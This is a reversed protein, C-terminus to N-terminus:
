PLVDACLQKTVLNRYSPAGDVHEKALLESHSGQEVIQGKNFVVIRDADKVTSLRHAIVLTTRGKRARQLAQQVLHESEADLASTAEDLLLVNPAQIIARAIAVRQKQGGSLQAGKEGVKTEYGDPLDAIFDAANAQKAAEQVRADYEAKLAPDKEMLAELGPRENLVSYMINSRITGSFLVPEQGVLAVRSHLKKPSIQHVPVGDVTVVGNNPEYYHELLHFCTSKGAGSQGVLAVTEGPNAVFSVNTLAARGKRGSYKFDVANFQVCGGAGGPPFGTGDAADEVDPAPEDSRLGAAWGAKPVRDMLEFVKEGAGMSKVVDTFVQLIMMIWGQLQGQYLMFAILVGTDTGQKHLKIGYLLVAAKICTNCLFSGIFMAYVAGMYRQRLTLEYWMQVAKRYREIEHGQNCFSLVTKMSCLVEFAVTSGRALSTQVVKANKRLWDRYLKNIVSVVPICACTVLGLKWDRVLMYIFIGFIRVFAEIMWRFVWSLNDAMEQTDSQLRSSLDGTETQDYFDVEQRLLQSFLGARLRRVLRASAIGFLYSNWFDMASDITGAIFLLFVQKCAEDRNGDGVEAIAESVFHPIALSFPLRIMLALCGMGIITKELMAFQFMRKLGYHKEKPPSPAPENSSENVLLPADEPDDGDSADDLKKDEEKDDEEKEDDEEPEPEESVQPWVDVMLGISSIVAAVMCVAVTICVEKADFLDGRSLGWVSLAVGIMSTCIGGGMVAMQRCTPSMMGRPVAAGVVLGVCFLVAGILRTVVAIMSGADSANQLEGTQVVVSWALRPSLLAIGGGGLLLLAPLLASLGLVV